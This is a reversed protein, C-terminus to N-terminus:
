LMFGFSGGLMVWHHFTRDDAAVTEDYGDIGIESYGGL